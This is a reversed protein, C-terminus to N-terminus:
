PGTYGSTPPTGGALVELTQTFWDSDVTISVSMLRGPESIGLLASNVDVTNGPGMIDDRPTQLGSVKVIEHDTEAQVYAMVTQCSVGGGPDTDLAREIQTSSYQYPIVGNPIPDPDRFVVPGFGDGYDFGTVEWATFQDFTERQTHAGELIDVGESLSFDSIGFPRGYVQVRFIEGGITEIIKYGLSSKTLRQLYDLATEGYTWTYGDPALRGRVIGTGGINAPTYTIGVIDLIAQTITQDDAPGGAIQTLSLGKPRSMRYKQAAYLPGRAILEFTPGTNLYDGEFVSGTFRLVNNTGGSTTAGMDITITDGHGWTPATRFKLYGKSVPDSFSSEVRAEIIGTVPNNNITGAAYPIYITGSM